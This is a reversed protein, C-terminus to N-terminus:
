RLGEKAFSEVIRKKLNTMCKSKRTKLGDYSSNEPREALIQELSKKEYFFMTLIEICSKPMSQLCRMVIRDKMVEPDAEGYLEEEWGGDSSIIVENLEITYKGSHYMELYKNRAIRMFYGMLDPIENEGGKTTAYVRGDRVFIVHSEMKKWLIVFSEQFLDDLDYGTLGGYNSTGKEFQNRCLNYWFQQVRKDGQQYGEVIQVDSYRKGNYKYIM